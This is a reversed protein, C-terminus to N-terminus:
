CMVEALDVEMDCVDQQQIESEECKRSEADLGAMTCWSFFLKKKRLHELIM